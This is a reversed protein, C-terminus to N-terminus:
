LYLVGGFDPLRFRDPPQLHFAPGQLLRAHLHHLHDTLPIGPHGQAALPQFPWRKRHLRHPKGAGHLLVRHARHGLQISDGLAAVAQQVVGHEAAEPSQVVRVDYVREFLNVISIYLSREYQSQSKVTSRQSNVPYPLPSGFAAAFIFKKDRRSNFIVRHIENPCSINM